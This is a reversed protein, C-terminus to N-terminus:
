GIGFSRKVPMRFSAFSRKALHASHKILHIHIRRIGINANTSLTSALPMLSRANILYFTATTKKIICRKKAYFTKQTAFFTTFKRVSIAKRM